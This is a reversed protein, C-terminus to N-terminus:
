KKLAKRIIPVLDISSAFKLNEIESIPVWEAMKAYLKEEEDFGDVSLGGGIIHVTYYMMISHVYEETDRPLRFLSTRATILEDVEGDYGTEEQVERILADEISEGLEIGGGPLDYWWWQPSLLIKEDRIIIGYVSPRWSLTDVPVEYTNKDKDICTVTNM